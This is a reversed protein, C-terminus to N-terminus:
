GQALDIQKQTNIKLGAGCSGTLQGVPVSPSDFQKWRDECVPLMRGGLFVFRFVTKPKTAGSEVLIKLELQLHSGRYRTAIEEKVSVGPHIQQPWLDSRRHSPKGSCQPEESGERTWVPPKFLM